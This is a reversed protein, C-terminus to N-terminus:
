RVAGSSFGLSILQGLVVSRGVSWGKRQKFLNTKGLKAFLDELDEM